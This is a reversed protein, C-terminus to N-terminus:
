ARFRNRETPAALKIDSLFSHWAGTPYSIVPSYLVTSDRVLIKDKLYGVEVCAGNGVSRSSKRWPVTDPASNISDV